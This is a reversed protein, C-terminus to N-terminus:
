RNFINSNSRYFLDKAFEPNIWVGSQNPDSSLPYTTDSSSISRAVKKQYIQSPDIMNTAAKPLWYVSKADGIHAAEPPDWHMQMQIMIGEHIHKIRLERDSPNEKVKMLVYVSPFRGTVLPLGRAVGAEDVLASVSEPSLVFEIAPLDKSKRVENMEVEMQRLQDFLPASVMAKLDELVKLDGVAQKWVEPDFDEIKYSDPNSPEFGGENIEPASKLLDTGVLLGDSVTDSLAAWFLADTASKLIRELFSQRIMHRYLAGNGVEDLRASSPFAELIPNSSSVHGPGIKRVASRARRYRSFPLGGTARTVLNRPLNEAAFDKAQARASPLSDNFGRRVLDGRNLNGANRLSMGGEAIAAFSPKCLAAMKDHLAANGALKNDNVWKDFKQAEVPGYAREIKARANQISQQTHWEQWFNSYFEPRANPVAAGLARKLEAKDTIKLLNALKQESLGHPWFNRMASQYRASPLSMAQPLRSGRTARRMLFHAGWFTLPRTVSGEGQTIDTNLPLYRTLDERDERYLRDYETRAYPFTNQYIMEQSNPDLVGFRRDSDGVFADSLIKYDAEGWSYGGQGTQASSLSVLFAMRRPNLESQFLNKDLESKAQWAQFWKWEIEFAAFKEPNNRYIRNLDNSGKAAQARSMFTTVRELSSWFYTSDTQLSQIIRDPSSELSEQFKQQRDISETDMRNRFEGLQLMSAAHIILAKEVVSLAEPDLGSFKSEFKEWTFSDIAQSKFFQDRYSEDWSEVVDRIDSFNINKKAEELYSDLRKAVFELQRPDRLAAATQGPDTLIQSIELGAALGSSTQALCTGFGLSLMWVILYATTRVGLLTLM